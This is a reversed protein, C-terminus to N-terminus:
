YSSFTEKSMTQSTTILLLFKCFGNAAVGEGLFDRTQPAHIERAKSPKKREPNGPYVDAECRTNILLHMQPKSQKSTEASRAHKRGGGGRGEGCQGNEQAFLRQRRNQNEKADCHMRRDLAPFLDAVVWNSWRAIFLKGYCPCYIKITNNNNNIGCVKELM